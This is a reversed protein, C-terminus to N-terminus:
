MACRLHHIALSTSHNPNLCPHTPVLHGKSHNAPDFAVIQRLEFPHDFTVARRHNEIQFSDPEDIAVYDRNERIKFCIIPLIM